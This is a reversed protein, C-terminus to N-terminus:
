NPNAYKPIISSSSSYYFSCCCQYRLTHPMHRMTTQSIPFNFKMSRKKMCHTIITYIFLSLYGVSSFGSVSKNADVSLQEPVQHQLSTAVRRSTLRPVQESDKEKTVKGITIPDNEKGLFQMPISRLM